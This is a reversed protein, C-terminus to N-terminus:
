WGVINCELINITGMMNTEFTELPNLYSKRVLPQAALHFVFEPNYKEFLLKLKELDRIDWRVDIIKEILNCDNFLKNNPYDELSYGKVEAGLKHLWISLWTGKFGTHGTVLVKKGKWTSNVIGLNEM